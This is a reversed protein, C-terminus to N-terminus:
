ESGGGAEASRARRRECVRIRRAVAEAAQAHVDIVGDAGVALLARARRETDARALVTASSRAKAELILASATSLDKGLAVILVDGAELIPAHQAEFLALADDCRASEFFASIRAVREPDRDIAVTTLGVRALALSLATGFRGLGIVVAKM